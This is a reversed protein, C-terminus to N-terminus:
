AKAEGKTPISQVFIGLLYTVNMAKMRQAQEINM